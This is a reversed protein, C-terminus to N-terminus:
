KFNDFLEFKQHNIPCILAFVCPADGGAILGVRCLEVICSLLITYVAQPGPPGIYQKIDARDVFALDVNGSVNSTTLIM